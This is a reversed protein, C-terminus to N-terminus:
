EVRGQIALGALLPRAPGEIARLTVSRVQQEPRPNIWQVAYLHKGDAECTDPYVGLAGDAAPYPPRSAPAPYNLIGDGSNM